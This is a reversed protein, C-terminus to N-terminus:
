WSDRLTRLAVFLNKESNMEYGMIEEVRNKLEQSHLRFFPNMKREDGIRMNKYGRRQIESMVNDRFENKPETYQAFKLNTQFYDHGVYLILSDSFESYVQIITNYAMDVSGDRCNGIGCNFVSDGCLAGVEKGSEIILYSFHVRMHGPTSIARLQTNKDLEIVEGDAVERTSHSIESNQPVILECNYKHLFYDNGGIHDYHSHTNIIGVVNLGRKNIEKEIAKTDYPDIIWATKNNLQIIFHFNKLSNKITLQIIEM